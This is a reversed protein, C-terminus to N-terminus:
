MLGAVLQIFSMPKVRRLDIEGTHNIVFERLDDSEFHRMDGGQAETRNTGKRGNKLWGRDIWKEIKHHDAGLLDEVMRMTFGDSRKNIHQRKAKLRIATPSRWIGGNIGKLKKAVRAFSLRPYYQHLAEVERDSWDGPKPRALGMENAMMRIYWRPYKDDMLQMIRDIRVTTGDYLDGIIKKEEETLNYKRAAM